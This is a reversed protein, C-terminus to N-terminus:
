KLHPFMCMTQHYSWRFPRYPRPLAKDINFEQYPQPLPFGSLEAYDPFPGLAKIEKVSLGTPTYREDPCTRYDTTMPLVQKAIEKEDVVTSSFANNDLNGLSERRQPPLIQAYDSPSTSSISSRRDPSISPPPTGATSAKRNRFRARHLYGKASSRDYALWLGTVAVISIGVLWINVPISFSDM